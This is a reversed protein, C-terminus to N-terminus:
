QPSTALITTSNCLLTTHRKEVVLIVDYPWNEPSREGENLLLQRLLWKSNRPQTTPLVQGIKKNKPPIKGDFMFQSNLRAQFSVNRPPSRVATGESSLINHLSHEEVSSAPGPEINRNNYHLHTCGLPFMLSNEFEFVDM